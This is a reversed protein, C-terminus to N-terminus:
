PKVGPLPGGVARELGALSVWYDRAALTYRTRIQNLAFTADNLDLLSAQGAKYRIETAKLALRAEQIATEQARARELAEVIALWQRRVDIRVSREIQSEREQARGLDIKSQRIKELRDGGTFLPYDLKLGANLDWAKQANAPSIANNQAIWDYRGFASLHPIMDARYIEVLHSYFQTTERAARLGPHNALALREAEEYSPAAERPPELTGVLVLPRDVDLTLTDQLSILALEHANKVSILFAKAGAVEVEQRQVVLDSDLGQRFRQQITNLHDQNSAVNDQQILATASSFLANYFLSKVAFDVDSQSQSVSKEQATLAHKAARIGSMVKGGTYLPQEATISADFGNDIGTEIINNAFFAKPREFNHVWKASSNISPLASGIAQRYRSEFEQLNFRALALDVNKQRAIRLADDLTLLLPPDASRLAPTSLLVAAILFSRKM